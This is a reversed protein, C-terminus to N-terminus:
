TETGYMVSLELAIRRLEARLAAPELIEVAPGFSLLWGLLERMGSAHSTLRLVSDDREEIELGTPLAEGLTRASLPPRLRLRVRLGPGVVDTPKPGTALRARRGRRGSPTAGRIQGLRITLARRSAPDDAVLLWGQDRLSLHRPMIEMSRPRSRETRAYKITVRRGNVIAENLISLLDAAKTSPSPLGPIALPIQGEPIPTAPALRLALKSRASHLARDMPGTRDAGREAAVSLALAEEGTLHLPPLFMPSPLRYGRDFYIPLGLVQLAHLDRFISRESVRCRAALEAPRIGPDSKMLSVILQLREARSM